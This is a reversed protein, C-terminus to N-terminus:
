DQELAQEPLRAAGPIRLMSLLAPLQRGALMLILPVPLLVLWAAAALVRWEVPQVEASASMLAGESESLLGVAPPWVASGLVRAFLFEMWSMLFCALFAMCIGRRIAPVLVRTLFQMFSFGDAMAMADLSPSVRALWSVLIWVAVPVAYVLHAVGVALPMNRWGLMENIEAMPLALVVAPMMLAVMMLTAMLRDGALMRRSWSYAMPLALLVAILATLAARLASRGLSVQWVPDELVAMFNGFGVSKGAGEPLELTLAVVALWLVPLLCFLLYGGLVLLRGAKRLCGRRLRGFRTAGRLAAPRALPVMPFRAVLVLLAVMLPLVLIAQGVALYTSLVPVAAPGIHEASSLLTPLLWSFPTQGIMSAIGQLALANGSMSSMMGEDVRSLVHFLDVDIMAGALLRCLVGLMIQRKLLPWELLRFADWASGGDFLVAQYRVREISRLRAYCLLAFLPVWQWLDRLLYLLLSNGPAAPWSALVGAELATGFLADLTPLLGFQQDLLLQWSMSSVTLPTLLALLLVVCWFGAMRGHVPLLRALLLGLGVELVLALSLRGAQLAMQQQVIEDQWLLEAMRFGGQVAEPSLSTVLQVLMALPLLWLVLMGVSGPVVLWVPFWRERHLANM